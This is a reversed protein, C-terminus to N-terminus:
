SFDEDFFDKEGDKEYEKCISDYNKELEKSLIDLLNEDLIPHSLDPSYYINLIDYELPAGPYWNDAPGDTVADEGPNIFLDAIFENDIAGDESTYCFKFKM